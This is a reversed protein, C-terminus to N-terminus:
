SYYYFHAKKRILFKVVTRASISSLMTIDATKLLITVDVIPIYLIMLFNKSLTQTDIICHNKIYILYM